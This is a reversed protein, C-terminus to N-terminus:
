LRSKWSSSWSRLRVRCWGCWLLDISCRWVTRLLVSSGEKCRRCSMLIGAHILCIVEAARLYENM